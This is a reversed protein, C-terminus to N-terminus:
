VLTVSEVQPSGVSESHIEEGDYLARAEADDEDSAEVTFTIAETRLITVQYTGM